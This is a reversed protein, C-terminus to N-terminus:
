PLILLAPLLMWLLPWYNPPLEIKQTKGWQGTSGDALLTRVRVFYVGVPPKSFVIKAQESEQDFTLQQFTQDSALQVQYRDDEGGARWRLEVNDGSISPPEPLPGPPPRRFRQPDSFPGQGGVPTALAVRWFYEGPPLPDRYVISPELLRDANSLLSRFVRDNALQFHYHGEESRAWRFELTDDGVLTDPAPQVPFPPEPRADIEIKREADMGEFGQADIARVRLRYHADPLDATSRAKPDPGIQDSDITSFDSASALQTRYASAGRVPPFPLDLPLREVREPLRDLQPAPLLSRPPIPAQGIRALSGMARKLRVGGRANRLIVEGRLTEARVQKAEADVRFRTGRVAAVGAPTDIVFRANGSRNADVENELHGRSLDIFVQQATTGKLRWLDGLRMESSPGLSSRSGDPFQLTLNGDAGTRLVEGVAVTMGPKLTSVQEGRQVEAYGHVGVVRAVLMERRLWKLPILLSSGPRIMHPYLIRNYEQLRPWYQYGNLYRETLNWPNDGPRVTYVFDAAGVQKGGTALLFVSQLGILLWYRFRYPRNMWRYIM